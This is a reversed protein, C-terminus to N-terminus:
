NRGDAMADLEDNCCRRRRPEVLTLLGDKVDRAFFMDKLGRDRAKEDEFIMLAVGFCKEFAEAACAMRARKEADLKELWKTSLFTKTM